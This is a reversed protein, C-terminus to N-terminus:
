FSERGSMRLLEGIMEEERGVFINIHGEGKILEAKLSEKPLNEALWKGHGFPVMADESGQYLLVPVKIEGLEFGWPAITAMSDDVWGYATHKLGENITEVLHSGLERHEVMAKKDVDPLITSWAEVLKEVTLGLMEPRQAAAFEAM